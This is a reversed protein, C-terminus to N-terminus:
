IGPSMAQLLPLQVVRLLPAHLRRTLQVCGRGADNCQTAMKDACAHVRGHAARVHRCCFSRKFVSCCVFSLYMSAM